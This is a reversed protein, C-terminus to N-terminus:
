ESTAWSVEEGEISASTLTMTRVDEIVEQVLIGNQVSYWRIRSDAKLEGSEPDQHTEFLTVKCTDIEGIGRIWLPDIGRFVQTLVFPQDPEDDGFEIRSALTVSEGKELDYHFARAPDFGQFTESLFAGTASAVGFTSFTEVAKAAEDVQFYAVLDTIEGISIEDTNSDRYQFSRELTGQMLNPYGDFVPGDTVEFRRVVSEKRIRSGGHPGFDYSAQYSSGSRLLEPNWCQTLSGDALNAAAPSEPIAVLNGDRLLAVLRELNPINPSTELAEFLHDMERDYADGVVFDTTFPDKDGVGSYGKRSLTSVLDSVATSLATSGVEPAGGSFWDAPNSGTAIALSLETYPTINVTGGQQAYSRYSNGGVQLACPLSSAAVEAEFNGNQDTVVRESFGSGGSCKATITAGTIAAGEAATGSLRVQTEDGTRSDDGSEGGSNCGGVILSAIAISLVVYRSINM